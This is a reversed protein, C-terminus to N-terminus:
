ARGELAQNVADLLEQLQFPKLFTREAGLERARCLARDRIAAMAIIHIDPFDKRLDRIAELGDKEPLLIDVIVLDVDEERCIRAGEKGNEAEM